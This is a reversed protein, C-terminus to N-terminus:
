FLILFETYSTNNLGRVSAQKKYVIILTSDIKSNFNESM